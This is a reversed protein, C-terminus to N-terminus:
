QRFTLRIRATLFTVGAQSGLRVGPLVKRDRLVLRREHEPLTDTVANRSSNANRETAWLGFADSRRADDRMANRKHSDAYAIGIPSVRCHRRHRSAVPCTAAGTHPPLTRHAEPLGRTVDDQTLNVSPAIDRQRHPKRLHPVPAPAHGRVQPRREATPTPGRRRAM